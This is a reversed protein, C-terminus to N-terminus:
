FLREMENLSDITMYLMKKLEDDPKTLDPVMVVKCGANYASLIGNPADEVAICDGPNEGIQECAYVYVDPHPKGNEVMHASIVVDFLDFLGLESLRRSAKQYETATVVATKIGRAKLCAIAEGIGPKVPVGGNEAICAEVLENARLRIDEYPLDDGYVAKWKACADRRNLSRQGLADEYTFDAYGFENFAKHWSRCYYKETDTITGDMDFLVAKIM